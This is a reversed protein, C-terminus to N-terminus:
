SSETGSDSDQLLQLLEDYDEKIRHLQASINIAALIAIQMTSLCPNRQQIDLMIENVYAGLSKIRDASVKGKIIYEEGLIHIAVRNHTDASM